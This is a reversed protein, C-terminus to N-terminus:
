NLCDDQFLTLLSEEKENFKKGYACTLVIFDLKPVINPSLTWSMEGPIISM